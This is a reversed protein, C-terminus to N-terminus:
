GGGRLLQREESAIAVAKAKMSRSKQAIQVQEQLMRVQWFSSHTESAVVAKAIADGTAEFARIAKVLRSNIDHLGAKARAQNDLDAELEQLKRQLESIVVGRTQFQSQFICRPINVSILAWRMAEYEGRLEKDPPKAPFHRTSSDSM